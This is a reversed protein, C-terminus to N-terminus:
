NDYLSAPNQEPLPGGEPTWWDPRDSVEDTRLPREPPAEAYEVGRRIRVDIRRSAANPVSMANRLRGTQTGLDFVQYRMLDPTYIPDDGRGSVFDFTLQKGPPIDIEFFVEETRLDIMSITKPQTETSYYTSSGFSAPMAGGKPSHCGAVFGCAFLGACVAIISRTKM